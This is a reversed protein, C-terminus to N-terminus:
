KHYTIDTVNVQEELEKSNQKKKLDDGLDMLSKGVVTLLQPGAKRVHKLITEKM